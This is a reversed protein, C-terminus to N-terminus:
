SYSPCHDMLGNANVQTGPFMVRDIKWVLLKRFRYDQSPPTHDFTSSKITWMNITSYWAYKGVGQSWLFNVLSTDSTQICPLRCVDCKQMHALRLGNVEDDHLSHKNHNGEIGHLDVRYLPGPTKALGGDPRRPEGASPGTLCRPRLLSGNIKILINKNYRHHAM